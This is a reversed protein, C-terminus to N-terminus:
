KKLLLPLPKQSDPKIVLSTYAPKGLAPILQFQYQKEKGDDGNTIITLQTSGDENSSINPFKIPKIQRIFLITAGEHSCTQNGQLQQTCSNSTFAFHSPDGIWVQKIKEETAIFNITLGYGPHVKLVTDLGTIGQADQSYVERISLANGQESWIILLIVIIPTILNQIKM